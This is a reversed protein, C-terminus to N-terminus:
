ECKLYLFHLFKFFLEPVLPNLVLRHVCWLFCSVCRHLLSTVDRMDEVGHGGVLSHFILGVVVDVFIGRQGGVLTFMWYDCGRL